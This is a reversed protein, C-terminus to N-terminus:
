SRHRQVNIEWRALLKSLILYFVFYIIGALLLMDLPLFNNSSAANAQFMLDAVGITFVLSTDKILNSLQNTSPPLIAFFAQPLVVKRMVTGRSMGLAEAAERQGRDVGLIGGRFIEGYLTAYFAGLSVVAAIVGPLKLGFQGLGYYVWFLIILVPISRIVEVFTAALGGLLRFKSLRALALLFGFVLAVVLSAGTLELTVGVGKMFLPLYKVWEHLMTHM